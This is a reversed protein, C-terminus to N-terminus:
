EKEFIHLTNNSDLLYMKDNKIIPPNPLTVRPPTELKYVWDIENRQINLAAVKSKWNDTFFVHSDTILLTNTTGMEIDNKKYEEIVPIEKEIKGTNADAIIFTDTNLNYLRGKYYRVLVNIGKTYWEVKGSDLGLSVLTTDPMSVILSNKHFIRVNTFRPEDFNNSEFQQTNFETILEGNELSYIQIIGANEADSKIAWKEYVIIYCFGVKISWKKNRNKLDYSFLCRTDEESVGILTSDDIVSLILAYGGIEHSLLNGTSLNYCYLVGNSTLFCSDEFVYTSYAYDEEITSILTENLAKDAKFLCNDRVFFIDDKIINPVKCNNIKNKLDFM